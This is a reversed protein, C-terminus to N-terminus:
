SVEFVQKPDLTVAERRQEGRERGVFQVVLAVHDFVLAALAEFVRGVAPPEFQDGLVQVWVPMRVGIVDDAHM